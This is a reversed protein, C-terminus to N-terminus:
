VAIRTNSISVACNGQMCHTATSLVGCVSIMSQAMLHGYSLFKSLPSTIQVPLGAHQSEPKCVRGVRQLAAAFGSSSWVTMCVHMGVLCAIVIYPGALADRRTYRGIKPCDGRFICTIQNVRIM